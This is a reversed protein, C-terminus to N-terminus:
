DLLTWVSILDVDRKFVRFVHGLHVFFQHFYRKAGDIHCDVQIASDPSVEIV